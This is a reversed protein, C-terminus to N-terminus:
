TEVSCCMCLIGVDSRVSSDCNNQLIVAKRHSIVGVSSFSVLANSPPSVVRKVRSVAVLFDLNLM